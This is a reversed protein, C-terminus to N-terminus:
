IKSQWEHIDKIAFERLANKEVDFVVMIWQQEHHWENAGFYIVKPIIIRTSTEGKYNTYNVKVIKPDDAFNSM